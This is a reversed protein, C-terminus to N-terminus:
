YVIYGSDRTKNEKKTKIFFLVASDAQIGQSVSREEKLSNGAVGRRSSNEQKSGGRVRRSSRALSRVM